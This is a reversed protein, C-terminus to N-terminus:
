DHYLFSSVGYRGILMTLCSLVDAMSMFCILRNAPSRLHPHRHITLSGTANTCESHTGGVSNEEMTCFHINHYSIHFHLALIYCAHHARSALSFRQSCDVNAPAAYYPTAINFKYPESSNDPQLYFNMRYANTQKQNSHSCWSVAYYGNANFSFYRRNM